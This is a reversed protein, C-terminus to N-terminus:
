PQVPVNIVRPPHDWAALARVLDAGSLALTATNRLPHVNVIAAGALAADIVVRVTGGTDNIAALPTVSGPTIGILREMDDAKGFSLKKTGLAAALSALDVRVNHPVTVLWFQGSADRLFMNKSHAGPHDDHIARSEAVTFVARHEHRTSAIGLADLADLLGQETTM